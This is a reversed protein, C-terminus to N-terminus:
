PALYAEVAHALFISASSLAIVAIIFEFMPDDKCMRYEPCTYQLGKGTEPTNRPECFITEHFANQRTQSLNSM